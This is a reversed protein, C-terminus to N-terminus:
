QSQLQPSITSTTYQAVISEFLRQLKLGIEPSNYDGATMVVSLELEPVVFLRQGGNGIAAAWKVPKSQWAAQGIRWHYGYQWDENIKVRPTLSKEIWQKSIIQNGEWQGEQIILRGIKLLDRPKLRLGAFSVPRWLIDRRWEFETIGLPKFLKENIYDPFSQGSREKILQALLTTNGGSYNYLSGPEAVDPKGLIFNARWPLFFLYTEDNKFTGYTHVQEDWQLGNSMSLLHAITLPKGMVQRVKNKYLVAEDVSKIKGEDIAIGIALAIITKSVSRMDHLENSTFNIEKSFWDGIPKDVGKFYSERIVTGRHEILLSHLNEPLTFDVSQAFAPMQTFLVATLWLPHINRAFFTSRV